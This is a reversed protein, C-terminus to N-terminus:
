SEDHVKNLLYFDMLCLATMAEVIPVARPLVCPDHRGKGELVTAKGSKDVTDQTQAITAVPKFAVRFYLAKGTSIGGLVGGALNTKPSIKGNETAEFVDNHASGRMEASHFGSGIEFGKSANISLMAYALQAELRHFVPEGLGVPMQPVFATICGGISDKSRRVEDIKAAMADATEAIPHRVIFDDIHPWTEPQQLPRDDKITGVQSVYAYINIGKAKLFKQAIAGAAVRAATERASSRGGGRYDFHGYKEAYTFDAHSPRYVKKFRDYDRSRADKNPILLMIPMGTTKGEFVGSLIEVQDTERRQSSLKSQGPKRRDLATQIEAATIALGSPCGELVVGIATGHSEGFTTIKLLYGFSNGM